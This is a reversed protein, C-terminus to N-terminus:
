LLRQSFANFIQNQCSHLNGAQLLRNRDQGMWTMKRVTVELARALLDLGMEGVAASLEGVEGSGEAYTIIPFADM